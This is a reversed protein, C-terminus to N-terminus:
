STLLYPALLNRLLCLISVGPAYINYCKRKENTCYKERPEILAYPESVTTTYHRCWTLNRTCLEYRTRMLSCRIIDTPRQLKQYIPQVSIVLAFHTKRHNYNSDGNDSRTNKITEETIGKLLSGLHADIIITKCTGWTVRCSGNRRVVGRM